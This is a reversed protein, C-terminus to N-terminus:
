RIDAFTGTADPKFVLRRGTPNNITKFIARGSISKGPEVTAPQPLDIIASAKDYPTVQRTQPDIIAFDEARVQLPNTGTNAVQFNIFTGASTAQLQYPAPAHAPPAAQTAAPPPTATAANGPQTSLHMGNKACGALILVFTFSLPATRSFLSM